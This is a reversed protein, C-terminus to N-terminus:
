KKFNHQNSLYKFHKKQQRIENSDYKYRDIKYNNKYEYYVSDLVFLKDDVEISNYILQLLYYSHSKSKITGNINSLKLSRILQKDVSYEISHISGNYIKFGKIDIAKYKPFSKKNLKLQTGTLSSLRLKFFKLNNTPLTYKNNDNM